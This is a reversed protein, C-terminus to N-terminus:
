KQVPIKTIKRDSKVPINLLDYIEQADKEPIGTVRTHYIDGSKSTQITTSRMHNSLKQRITTWSANYEGKERLSFIVSKLITYSLVSIFLHSEIRSDLQHYIPRTGLDTKISRFASEVEHLTMYFEWIEETEIDKRDTEIVYCGPLDRKKNIVPKIKKELKLESICGIKCKDNILKIEYLSSIAGYREKIRGIRQHIKKEDKITGKSISVTLRNIDELFREEKRGTIASEKEMKRPSYVLVRTCNEEDIRKLYITQKSRTEYATGTEQIDSFEEKYLNIVNRREIIFYSYNHQKLYDLNEKTAIGKDMAIAPKELYVLYDESSDYLQTIIDKMTLPESQNGRYIRSHIPFGKQDVVLALTVLPCDTRKEKSKGRKCLRSNLKRGEFYTNTLDYLYITDSYPFLQKTKERLLHEIKDKNAYLLDSIEYFADKGTKKLDSSLTELLSSQNFFWYITQLESGPSILRGFLIVKVLDIEKWSFKCERLIASLHLQRWFFECIIECGVSRCSTQNTSKLDIEVFQAAEAEKQVKVELKQKDRYKILAQDAIKELKPYRSTEKRGYIRLEIMKGLIKIKDDPLNLLGLHFVVRKKNKGTETKINEVLQHFYYVSGTKKDKTEKKVIYM